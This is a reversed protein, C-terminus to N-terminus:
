IRREVVSCYRGAAVTAQTDFSGEGLLGVISPIHSRGNRRNGHQDSATILTSTRVDEVLKIGLGGRKMSLMIRERSFHSLSAVDLGTCQALQTLLAKDVTAVFEDVLLLGLLEEQVIPM